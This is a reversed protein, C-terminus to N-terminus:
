EAVPIFIILSLHCEKMGAGSSMKPKALVPTINESSRMLINLKPYVTCSCASIILQGELLSQILTFLFVLFAQVSSDFCKFDKGQRERRGGGGEGDGIKGLPILLEKTLLVYWTSQM